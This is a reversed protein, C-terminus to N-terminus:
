HLDPVGSTCGLFQCSPRRHNYEALLPLHQARHDSSEHSNRMRGNRLATQIFAGAKGNTRLTHPKTRMYSLCADACDPLVASSRYCAGNDTLVRKFTVGLTRYFAIGGCLGAPAGAAIDPQICAFFGTTTM